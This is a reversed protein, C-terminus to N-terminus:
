LHEPYVAVDSAARLEQIREEVERQILLQAIQDRIDALPITGGETQVQDQNADYWAEIGEETPTVGAAIDDVVAQVSLAHRVHERLASEDEFGLERLSALFADETEYNARFQQLADDVDEDTAAIGRAQAEQRLVLQTALQDLFDARSDEFQALNEETPEIGQQMAASRVAIDFQTEFESETVTTDGLEILVDDDEQAVAFGTVLLALALMTAALTRIATAPSTRISTGRASRRNALPTRHPM